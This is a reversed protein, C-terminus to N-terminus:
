ADIVDEDFDAEGPAVETEYIPINLKRKQDAM